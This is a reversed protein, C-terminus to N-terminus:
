AAVGARERDADVGGGGVIRGYFDEWRGITRDLAGERANRRAAAGMRARLEWDAKLEDLRAIFDKPHRCLFGTRGDDIFDRYPETPSCLPVIGCASYELGKLHSKGENFENRVLPVLGVDFTATIFPLDLNRFWVKATTVRQEAPTGVVDHARGDGAAVFEADPNRVLWKRLPGAITKLDEAHYAMNGMYGVRFRRWERREYVPVVQEWMPWHLGNPLVVTDRCWRSYFRELEATAFSAADAVKLLEVTNRRNNDPSRRPDLVAPNYSPNRHLDDDLDLVVRAGGAKFRRAWEVMWGMSGLQFVYLEAESISEEIFSLAFEGPPIRELLGEGPYPRVQGRDSHLTFSPMSAVHGRAGLYVMPFILRYCGAGDVNAPLFCVRM